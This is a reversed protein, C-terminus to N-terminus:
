ELSISGNILALAVIDDTPVDFPAYKENDSVCKICDPRESPQVRKIMVGQSQTYIVYVRGWQFFLRDTVKKCAVIDGGTFKPSMSDGKIRILFDSNRFENIMYYDEVQMDEYVTTGPGAIADIPILPLRVGAPLLQEGPRPIKYMQDGMSDGIMLWTINLAPYKQAIRQLKDPQISSRINNVYGPGTGIEREFRAQSMGADNLFALLREKVGENGVM